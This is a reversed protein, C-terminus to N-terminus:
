SKTPPVLKGENSTKVRLEIFADPLTYGQAVQTFLIEKPDDIGTVLGIFPFVGSSFDDRNSTVMINETKGCKPCPLDLSLVRRGEVNFSEEVPWELDCKGCSITLIEKFGPAKEEPPKCRLTVINNNEMNNEKGNIKKNSNIWYGKETPM